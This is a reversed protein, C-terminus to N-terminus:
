LKLIYGGGSRTLLYEPKKPNVEIKKRIKQITMYVNAESGFGNWVSKLLETTYVVSNCQNILFQLVQYERSSLYICEDNKLVAKREFDLYLKTAYRDGDTSLVNRQVFLGMKGLISFSKEICNTSDYYLYIDATTKLYLNILYQLEYEKRLVSWHVIIKEIKDLYVKKM